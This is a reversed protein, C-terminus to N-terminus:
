RGILSNRSVYNPSSGVIGLVAYLLCGTQASFLCGSMSIVVMVMTSGLAWYLSRLIPDKVAKHQRVLLYIATVLTGCLAILGLIGNQVGALIYQNTIDTWEAGLLPGWGPDRGGYGALWWENLHDIAVNILRSRHSSSGGVPNTFRILVDYFRRNSIVDVILCFFLIFAVLPKALYKLHELILCVIIIIVMMWPGSSMSMLSGFIVM